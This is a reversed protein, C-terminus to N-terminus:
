RPSRLVDDSYEIGTSLPVIWASRAHHFAGPDLLWCDGREPCWVCSDRRRYGVRLIDFGGGPFLAVTSGREWPVCPCVSINRSPSGSVLSSQPPPHRGGSVNRRRPPSSLTPFPSLAPSARNDQKTVLLHHHRAPHAQPIVITVQTMNASRQRFPVSKRPPRHRAEDPRLHAHM